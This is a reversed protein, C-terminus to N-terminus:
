GTEGIPFRGQRQLIARLKTRRETNFRFIRVTVEGTSTRPEIRSGVIVFHDDWNDRRPDFFRVISEDSAYSVLDSGKFGNCEACAFALNALM